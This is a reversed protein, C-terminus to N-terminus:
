RHDRRRLYIWFILRAGMKPGCASSPVHSRTLFAGSLRSSLPGYCVSKQNLGLAESADEEWGVQRLIGLKDFSM